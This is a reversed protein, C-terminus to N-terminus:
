PAPTAEPHRRWLPSADAAPTHQVSKRRKGGRKGRAHPAWKWCMGDKVAFPAQKGALADQWQAPAWSVKRHQRGLWREARPLHWGGISGHSWVISLRRHVRFYQCRRPRFRLWLKNRQRRRVNVRGEFANAVGACHDGFSQRRLVNGVAGRARQSAMRRHLCPPM